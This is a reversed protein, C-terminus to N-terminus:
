PRPHFSQLVKSLRLASASKKEERAIWGSAMPTQIHTNYFYVKLLDVPQSTEYDWALGKEIHKGHQHVYNFFCGMDDFYVNHMNGRKDSEQIAVAFRIDNLIMGCHICSDIGLRPSRFQSGANDWVKIWAIYVLIFVVACGVFIYPVQKNKFVARGM